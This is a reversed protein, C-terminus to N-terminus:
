IVFDPCLKLVLTLVIWLFVPGYWVSRNLLKIDGALDTGPGTTIFPLLVHWAEQLMHHYNTPLGLRCYHSQRYQVLVLIGLYEDFEACQAVVRVSLLPWHKITDLQQATL